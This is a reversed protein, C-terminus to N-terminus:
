GADHSSRRIAPGRRSAHLWLARMFTARTATTWGSRSRARAAQPLVRAPRRLRPDPRRPRPQHAGRRHAVPRAAALQQRLDPPTDILVTTAEEARRRRGAGNSCCCGAARAGTRRSTRIASAGIALPARCAAPRAAASCPSACRAMVADMLAVPRRPDTPFLRFFNDALLASAEEEDLGAARRVGSQVTLSMRRSAADAATRCPRWIRATPRSSSATSRCTRARDRARRRREQVDHHRLVLFVRRTRARAAGAGPREHLLAHPHRLAGKGAEEELMEAMPEDAERTHIILPKGLARAAKAHARFM